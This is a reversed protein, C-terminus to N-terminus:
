RPGPWGLHKKLFEVTGVGHIKHPGNFYEIRTRDGIGMEDYFRRVKAYEYAILEDSGVGDRHGREVMFPRPAILWAMEAHNAVGGVDFEDIEYEPTFMYTWVWDETTLKVIWENFDGSCISLAYGDLLAPIRLATKGGYSLGYFAIRKGDVPAQSQLWELTREHQRLIYSFMTLKVSNGVHNLDRFDGTYPNQPLYVIFGMDALKSGINIYYQYDRDGAVSTPADDLGFMSQPRGNLGHQCVVVPRKEGDRIDKPLLLVGYAFVGPYLDLTVEYGRWKATQWQLRSRPNAPGPPKPLRGIIEELFQERYAGTTALWGQPSKMDAKGWYEARRFESQRVLRQTYDVLERFQREHRERRAIKPPPDAAPVGPVGLAKLFPEVADARWEIRAGLSQARAVEKRVSEPNQPEVTGPAGGRRKPDAESPGAWRPGPTGDIWVERPAILRAVEADGFDKLLGWVTRYLPERWVNQRSDFYGSIGAARVRPDLAAAHLAALGGEGYGWIGIPAGGRSAFWDVAALAKQIEYGTVQRGVPYAMRWLYERHPQNTMRFKLNGSWTDGRDIMAPVLVECGARALRWALAFDEPPQDADPLAVIRAGAATKPAFYLGEGHVGDLVPWRVAMVRLSADEYVLAPSTLTADLELDSFPVCRDVVGLIRALKERNPARGAPSADITHLMHGRIGEVMLAVPDGAIELPRTDPLSQAAAFAALAALPLIKMLNSAVLPNPACSQGTRTITYFLASEGHFRRVIRQSPNGTRVAPKM